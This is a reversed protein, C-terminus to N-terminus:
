DVVNMLKSIESCSHCVNIEGKEKGEREGEGIEWALFTKKKFLTNALKVWWNPVM